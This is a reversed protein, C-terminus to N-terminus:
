ASAARVFGITREAINYISYYKSLFAGGIVWMTEETVTESPQFASMCYTAPGVPMKTIYDPGSLNFNQGGLVIAIRPLVKITNCDVTYRNSNFFAKAKLIDNIKEIDKKPGVIANSSTDVIAKCTNNCFIANEKSPPIVQELYIKDVTFQWYQGADVPLYKIPDPVKDKNKHIHRHEIYGLIINGGRKSDRNSNIYISFIPNKIKKQKLLTYFFPDYDDNKVGLGLIGDAKNLFWSPPVQVMEVFSQKTVNSHAISINDYAYFGSLKFSGDQVSYPRGDPKYESSKTHDYKNHLWCGPTEWYNCKSSIVWALNWATDFNVKFKQGPHGIIIEGFFENDLYRYLAISDNTRNGKHHHKKTLDVFEKGYKTLDPANLFEERPTKQRKLPIDIGGNKNILLLYVGSFLTFSCLISFLVRMGM